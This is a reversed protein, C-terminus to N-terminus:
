AKACFSRVVEATMGGEWWQVFAYLPCSTDALEAPLLPWKSAM